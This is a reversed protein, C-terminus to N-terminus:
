ILFQSVLVIFFISNNKDGNTKIKAASKVNKMM